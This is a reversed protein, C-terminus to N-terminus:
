APLYFLRNVFRVEGATGLDFMVCNGKRIMRMGELESFPCSLHNSRKPTGDARWVRQAVMVAMDEPFGSVRLKQSSTASLLNRFNVM